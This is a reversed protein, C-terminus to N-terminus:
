QSSLRVGPRARHRHGPRGLTHGYSRVSSYGDAVPERHVDLTRRGLDVIWYEAIGAAAYLPLKVTRDYRISSDSVEILVVVDAPTPRGGTRYRDARYRFVALDPQPVNYQDLKVPNQVSVIGRGSFPLVLTELLGNVADMHDDGIPPMDILEGNLLEVRDDQGLVGAEGLKSYADVDLKHRTLMVADDDM